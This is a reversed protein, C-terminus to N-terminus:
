ILKELFMKAIDEHDTELIMPNKSATQNMWDLFEILLQLKEEMILQENINIEGNVSQNQM